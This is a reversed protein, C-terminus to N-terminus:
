HCCHLLKQCRSFNWPKMEIFVRGLMKFSGKGALLALVLSISVALVTATESFVPKFFVRILFDIVPAALIIALPLLLFKLNFKETYEIKGGAKRLLFFWGLLISFVFFPFLFPIVSYLELNAIKVAGILAPSLPYVFLLVHRFWVNIASKLRPSIKGGAKKILPASMLAGGPMPLMGLLAPAFALFPKKGIRLNKVLSDMQGTEEMVGGILPIIAVALALLAISPETLTFVLQSFVAEPQLVFFGLLLAGSFLAATLSKKSLVLIIAISVLFASLEILM